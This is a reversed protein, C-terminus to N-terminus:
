VGMFRLPDTRPFYLDAAAFLATLLQQQATARDEYTVSYGDVNESKIGAACPAQRQAFYVEAVACAAMRINDTMNEATLRGCTISSLFAHARLFAASFNEQPILSGQYIERYFNYDAAM